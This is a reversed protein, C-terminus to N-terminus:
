PMLIKMGTLRSHKIGTPIRRQTSTPAAAALEPKKKHTRGTKYDFDFSLSVMVKPNLVDIRDEDHYTRAFIHL